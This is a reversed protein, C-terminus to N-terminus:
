NTEKDAFFGDEEAVLLSQEDKDSRPQTTEREISPTLIGNKVAFLVMEVNSTVGLKDFIRYRYSNVTKPSLHLSQAIKNVRQCDLLMLLVQFERRTLKGILNNEGYGLSASLLCQAISECVYRRGFFVKRIAHNLEV